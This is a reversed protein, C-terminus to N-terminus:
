KKKHIKKELDNMEKSFEWDGLNNFDTSSGTYGDKSFTTSDNNHGYVHCTKDKNFTIWIDSGDDFRVIYSLGDFTDIYIEAPYKKGKSDFSFARYKNNDLYSSQLIIKYVEFGDFHNDKDNIVCNNIGEDMWQREQRYDQVKHYEHLGYLGIAGGIIVPLIMSKAFIKLFSPHVPVEDTSNEDNVKKM